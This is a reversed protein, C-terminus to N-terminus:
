NFLEKITTFASMKRKKKRHDRSFFFHFIESEFSVRIHTKLLKTLQAPKPQRHFRLSKINSNEVLSVKGFKNPDM